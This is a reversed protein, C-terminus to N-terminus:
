PGTYGFEMDEVWLVQDPDGDAGFVIRVFCYGPRVDLETSYERWNESPELAVQTGTGRQGSVTVNATTANGRAKFRLTYKGATRLRMPQSLLTMAIEPRVFKLCSKGEAPNEQSWNPWTLGMKRAHSPTWGRPPYDPIGAEFGGNRLMNVIQGSYSEQLTATVRPSVDGRYRVYVEVGDRMPAVLESIGRASLDPDWRDQILLEAQAASLRYVGPERPTLDGFAVIEGNDAVATELEVVYRGEGDAITLELPPPPKTLDLVPDIWLVTEGARALEVQMRGQSWRFEVPKAQEPKNPPAAFVADPKGPLWVKADLDADHKIWIQAMGSPSDYYGAADCTQNAFFLREGDAILKNGGHVLWRHISGDAHKALAAVRSTTEIGSVSMQMPRGAPRKQFIVTETIEGASFTLGLADGTDLKEIDSIRPGAGAEYAQMFALMREAKRQQTTVQITHQQPFAETFRCWAKTLMPYPRENSQTYTLGDPALHRVELREDQQPILMTQTDADIEAAAFANLVWSFESPEAAALEDHVIFVDPRIFLVTRDFLDLLEPYARAADGTFLCYDPSNFFASVRGKAEISKPQGRGNVLITNHAVSARSFKSHYTDGCYTYYGADCAMIEGGAHLVFGNQDCHSHSHSGWPSSRFFIRSGHHDYFRDYAALQGVDSFLRAQPIDVPPKPKLGVDSIYRFPIHAPNCVVTDAYWKLARNGTKAALLSAIYGDSSNGYMPMILSYIDGWHNYWYNLAMCHLWFDGSNVLRPKNFIDIGTATRMAALGELIFRFKHGYTQGEIYSGDNGGWAIRNVYQRILWDAWEAGRESDAAVAMATTLLAHMCQQGHSNEYNLHLKLRNRCWDYANDGHYEVHAIVQEREEDSLLGYLRDYALAVNKLGYEYNYVVTDHQGRDELHYDMRFPLVYLLWQKAPEAYREDGTILYAFSLVNAKGAASNMTANTCGVPVFPEGNKLYFVQKRTKGPNAPMPQLKPEGPPKSDVYQAAAYEIDDWAEKAPGYRRARFAELTEPTVFVRPHDPMKALIDKTAPVPMPVSTETIVFSCPPSPESLEGDKTAVLYRWYWKGEALEEAHNYFPMDIGEVRVVGTDFDVSQCMEVTYIAARDDIRWIMSPPNTAAVAGDPPSLPPHRPPQESTDVSFGFALAASLIAVLWCVGLKLLM